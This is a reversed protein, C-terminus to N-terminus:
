QEGFLQRNVSQEGDPDNSFITEVGNTMSIRGPDNRTVLINKM